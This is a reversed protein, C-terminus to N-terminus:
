KSPRPPRPKQPEAILRNRGLRNLPRIREDSSAGKSHGAWRATFVIPRFAALVSACREVVLGPVTVIWWGGASSHRESPREPREPDHEELFRLVDPGYSWREKVLKPAQGRHCWTVLHGNSALNAAVRVAESWPVVAYVSRGRDDRGLLARRALGPPGPESRHVRMLQM